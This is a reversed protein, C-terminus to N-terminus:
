WPGQRTGWCPGSEEKRSTVTVVVRSADNYELGIHQLSAL